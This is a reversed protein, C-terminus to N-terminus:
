GSTTRGDARRRAATLEQKITRSRSREGNDPSTGRSVLKLSPLHTCIASFSTGLRLALAYADVPSSSRRWGSDSSSPTAAEPPMLFWAAFAEALKEVAGLGRRHWPARLKPRDARRPRVPPPRVRPRRQLASAGAPAARQHDRGAHGGLRAPLYLRRRAKLDRFVLRLGVAAMADFVDIRAFTDIALEEHAEFAVVMAERHAARWDMLRGAAHRLYRPLVCRRTVTMVRWSAASAARARGGRRSSLEDDSRPSIARGLGMPAPRSASAHRRRGRDRGAEFAALDDEPIGGTAASTRCDRARRLRARRALRVPSDPNSVCAEEQDVLRDLYTTLARWRSSRRHTRPASTAAADSRAPPASARRSWGSRIVRVSQGPPSCSPKLSAADCRRKTALRGVGARAEARSM